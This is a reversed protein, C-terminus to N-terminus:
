YRLGCMGCACTLDLMQLGAQDDHNDTLLRHGRRLPELAKEATDFGGSKTALGLRVLSAAVSIHEAAQLLDRHTKKLPKPPSITLLADLAERVNAELVDLSIVAAELEFTKATRFLLLLGALQAISRRFTSYLPGM